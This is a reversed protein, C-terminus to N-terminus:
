RQMSTSMCNSGWVVRLLFHSMYSSCDCFRLNYRLWVYFYLSPYPIHGNSNNHVDSSQNLRKISARRPNMFLFLQKETNIMNHVARVVWWKCSIQSPSILTDRQKEMTINQERCWLVTKDSYCLPTESAFITEHVTSFQRLFADSQFLNKIRCWPLTCWRSM